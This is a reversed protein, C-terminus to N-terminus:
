GARQDLPIYSRRGYVNKFAPRIIRKASFTLEEMRHACWGSIRAMAFLPTYLEKPIGICSYVFGSYFDVNICVVKATQEGKFKRFVEPTLREVLAYLEFEDSKGSEIALERAKEKLLIARPDSITYVAHGIGYIIGTRDNAEKKLIKLLYNEVEAENKWNKVNKKIDEMMTLVKLNAGGHLPGKLSGIASTVASYIDTETSSTVRMTFTSNNGGGHEAHLVLSLDILDAQLRSYFGEGKILHLFNEATTLKPQPHRISLTKGQYAHRLAQYSYAIISPFKAILNLSQKVMNALSIDDAHDDLTYLGLVSRALMNLVDKGKMSLIMDKTFHDPLGRLSALHSSFEELENKQPLKGTLLLYVTEDFGHRKEMQFGHTIDEIDIGRYLLRGPVAVVKGNEKEYGVVDGINTLGVLVGTRDNNRLGRKVDYKEFLGNDIQCSERVSSELKKFFGTNEM